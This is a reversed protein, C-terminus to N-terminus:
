SRLLKLLEEPNKNNNWFLLLDIRKEGESFKYFLTTQKSIVLSYINDKSNFMGITPNSKIRGISEEVMDAFKEVEKINWKILIFGAEEEFSFLALPQWFVSNEM